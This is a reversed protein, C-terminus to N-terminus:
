FQPVCAGSSCIAQIPVCSGSVGCTTPTTPCTNAAYASIADSTDHIAAALIPASCASQCSISPDVLVCDADNSCGSAHDRAIQALDSLIREHAVVCADDSGGPATANVDAPGPQRSAESSAGGCSCLLATVGLFILRKM